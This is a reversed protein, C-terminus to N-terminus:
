ENMEVRAWLYIDLLALSYCYHLFTNSITHTHILERVSCSTCNFACLRLYEKRASHVALHWVTFNSSILEPQLDSQMWLGGNKGM